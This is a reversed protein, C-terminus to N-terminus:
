VLEGFSLLAELVGGGISRAKDSVSFCNDRVPRPDVDAIKMGKHVSLGEHLLGRLVGDLPSLVEQKEGNEKVINLIPQGKKVIDAINAIHEMVGADPSHVVREKGYGAIVGPVGTNAQAFGQKIVRGLNHGRNTEIVAHCDVGAEFGPGLAVVVKAMDIKTGLNKKAIIADVLAIPNLKKVMECKPDVVIPIEGNKLCEKIEDVGDCLRSIIGEVEVKKEFMAEAFAATRRIVTPKAIDLLVVDFGSNKLRIAVGTALDGAGRIVVLKKNNM